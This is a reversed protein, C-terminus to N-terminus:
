GGIEDTVFVISSIRRTISAMKSAETLTDLLVPYKGCHQRVPPTSVFATVAENRSDEQTYRKYVSM